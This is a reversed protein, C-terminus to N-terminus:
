IKGGLQELVIGTPLKPYFYTSKQPMRDGTDAVKRVTEPKVPPVLVAVQFEGANAKQVAEVNDSTYAIKGDHEMRDQDGTLPTLLVNHLVAVTLGRWEASQNQPILAQVSPDDKIHCTTFKGGHYICFEGQALSGVIGDVQAKTDGGANEVRTDFMEDARRDLSAITDASLGRLMRHYPLTILGADDLSILAMLVFNYAAETDASPEQSRRLDRYALATEYRHHGDAIYVSKNALAAAIKATVAHEHIPWVEHQEGNPLKLDVAPDTFMRMLKRIAGDADDYMGMVPSINTRVTTLLEWRDKKPGAHTFEHPKVIGKGWEELRVAAYFSRRTHTEGRLTFTHDALYFSPTTDRKLVSEKVWQNLTDRARTYKNNTPGDGAAEMSLEVRVINHPSLAHLAKQREPSIIDYPECIAKSVDGVVSQNFRLGHFPRVDAM